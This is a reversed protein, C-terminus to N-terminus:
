ASPTQRQRRDHGDRDRGRGVRRTERQRRDNAGALGLGIRAQALRQDDVGAKAIAARIVGWANAGLLTLSSAGGTAQARQGDGGAVLVRTTSAGGDVAIFLDEGM